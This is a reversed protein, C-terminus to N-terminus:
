NATTKEVKAKIFAETFAHHLKAEKEKDDSGKNYFIVLDFIAKEFVPVLEQPIIVPEQKTDKGDAETTTNNSTSSETTTKNDTNAKTTTNKSTSSETRTKNDTNAKTTTNGM